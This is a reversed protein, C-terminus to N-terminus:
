EAVMGEALFLTLDMPLTPEDGFEQDVAFQVQKRGPREEIPTDNQQM